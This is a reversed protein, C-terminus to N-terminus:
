GCLRWLSLIHRVMKGRINRRRTRNSYNKYSKIIRYEGLFFSSIILILIIVCTLIVKITKNM